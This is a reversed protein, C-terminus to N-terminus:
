TCFFKIDNLIYCNLIKCCPANLYFILSDQCKRPFFASSDFDFIYLASMFFFAFFIKCNLDSEDDTNVDRHFKKLIFSKSVCDKQAPKTCVVPVCGCAACPCVGPQGAPVAPDVAAAPTGPKEPDSTEAAPTGTAM